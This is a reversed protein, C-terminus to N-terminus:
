PQVGQNNNQTVPAVAFIDFSNVLAVNQAAKAAQAETVKIEAARKVISGKHSVSLYDIESTAMEAVKRASRAFGLWWLVVVAVIVLMVIEM